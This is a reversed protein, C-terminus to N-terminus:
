GKMGTTAIGEVFYKQAFFFLLVLPMMSVFAMALINNWSVSANTDMTMRLGLALPYSNVSNIYILPNFFDNWAWMFQFMAVSFLAPKSLPLMISIFIHLSSCGDISASEDLERPVGRFFQVLMFVFFPTGAFMCPVIFPMYTDLWGMDRFMVYRPILMVSSPLMMTCIMLGFFFKKGWFRFRAFGYAVIASSFVTFLVMPLVMKFTNLFYTTFTYQGSGKWGNRYGELSFSSPLLSATSFIENNTKFTAFFLWILPCVMFLAGLTVLLYCFFSSIMSRKM